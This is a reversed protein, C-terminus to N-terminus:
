ESVNVSITQPKPEAKKPLHLELVGNRFHAKVAEPEIERSLRYSATFEGASASQNGSQLQKAGEQVFLPKREIKLSITDATAEIKLGELTVGPLALVYVYEAETEYIDPSLSPRSTESTVSRGFLADTERQIREIERYPNWPASPRGNRTILFASM